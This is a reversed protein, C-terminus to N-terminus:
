KFKNLSDQKEKQDNVTAAAVVATAAKKLSNEEEGYTYAITEDDNDDDDDSENNYDNEDTIEGMYYLIARPIVKEKFTYGIEYDVAIEAEEEGTLDRSTLMDRDYTDFYNFFSPQSEEIQQGLIASKSDKRDVLKCTVNKNTKWNITCGKSCVSEPAEFVYPEKPDIEIKFEYRKTLVSNTFYENPAFYFKLEFSYPKEKNFDIDIDNLHKLIPEDHKEIMKSVLSVRKLVNLWFEPIGGKQNNSSERDCKNGASDCMNLTLIDQVIKEQLSDGYGGGSGSGGGRGSISNECENDNPEHQGLIIKKRLEKLPKSQTNYKCELIYLDEFFKAELKAAKLQLSKLAALRRKIM